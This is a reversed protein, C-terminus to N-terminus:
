LNFLNHKNRQMRDARALINKFTQLEKDINLLTMLEKIRRDTNVKKPEAFTIKQASASLVKKVPM